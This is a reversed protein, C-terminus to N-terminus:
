SGRRSMWDIAGMFEFMLYGLILSRWAQMNYGFVTPFARGMAISKQVIDSPRM